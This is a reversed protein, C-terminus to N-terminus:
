NNGDRSEKLDQNIQVDQLEESKGVGLVYKKGNNVDHIGGHIIEPDGKRENESDDNPKVAAIHDNAHEKCGKHDNMGSHGHNMGSMKEANHHHHHHHHHSSNLQSTVAALLILMVGLIFREHRRVRNFVAYRVGIFSLAVLPLMVGIATLTLVSWILFVSLFSVPKTLATALVPMSGVCPSLTTLGVVSVAAAKSINEDNKHVDDKDLSKSKTNELTQQEENQNEDTSKKNCCSVSDRNGFLFYTMLYYTGLSLLVITCLLTYTEDSIIANSMGFIALVVIMTSSAHGLAGLM